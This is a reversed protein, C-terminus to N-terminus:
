TQSEPNPKLQPGRIFTGTPLANLLKLVEEEASLAANTYADRGGTPDPRPYYAAHVQIIRGTTTMLDIM